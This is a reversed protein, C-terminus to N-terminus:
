PSFCALLSCYWGELTVTQNLCVHATIYLPSYSDAKTSFSVENTVQLHSRLTDSSLLHLWARSTHLGMRRKYTCALMWTIKNSDPKKYSNLTIICLLIYKGVKIIKEKFCFSKKLNNAKTTFFFSCMNFYNIQNIKWQVSSNFM